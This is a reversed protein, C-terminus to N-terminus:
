TGLRRPPPPVGKSGRLAEFERKSYKLSSKKGDEVDVTEM